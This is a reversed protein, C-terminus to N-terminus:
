DDDSDDDDSDRPKQRISSEMVDHIKNKKRPDEELDTVVAGVESLMWELEDMKLNMGGFAFPGIWQKKMDGNRYIFITPLNKDPYNPICLTSISKLFKTTPFKQALQVLFQNILACIPLGTKYLHLVVWVGDGAKNVENIYDQGTIERVDGYKSAKIHANFEALRQQRYQQIIREDEEDEMEELEELTMDEIAKTEKFRDKITSEVMNVIDDETIEAEKPKEPLIGHRRLADNWETDENPNQM